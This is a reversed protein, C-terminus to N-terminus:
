IGGQAIRAEELMTLHKRIYRMFLMAKDEALFVTNGTIDSAPVPFEFAHIKNDTYSGEPTDSRVRFSVEYWLTENTYKVFRAVNGKAIIDKLQSM